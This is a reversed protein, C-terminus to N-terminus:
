FGANILAGMLRDAVSIIRTRFCPIVTATLDSKPKRLTNNVPDHLPDILELLRLGGSLVSLSCAEQHESRFHDLTKSYRIQALSDGAM